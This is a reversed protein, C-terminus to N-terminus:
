AFHFLRSVMFGVIFAAITCIALATLTFSRPRLKGIGPLWIFGDKQIKYVIENRSVFDFESFDPRESRKRNNSM